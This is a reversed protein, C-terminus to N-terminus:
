PLIKLLPALIKQSAEASGGLDELTMADPLDILAPDSDAPHLGYAELIRSAEDSWLYGVLADLMAQEEPRANRRLVVVVPECLITSPPRVVESKTDKPAKPGLVDHEYAVCVDGIGRLFCRQAARANAAPCLSSIQLRFALGLADEANGTRALEEGYAALLTYAGLGSTKPCPRVLKADSSALTDFDQVGKPNGERVRLVLATRALVGHHPLIGWAERRVVDPTLRTADLESSLIAVHPRGGARIEKVLERSGGSRHEIRLRTGTREEWHATFRPLLGDDLLRDLGSYAYLRLVPEPPVQASNGTAVVTVLVLLAVACCALVTVLKQHTAFFSRRHPKWESSSFNM